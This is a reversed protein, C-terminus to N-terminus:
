IENLRMGLPSHTAPGPTPRRECASAQYAQILVIRQFHKAQTTLLSWAILGIAFRRWDKFLMRSM